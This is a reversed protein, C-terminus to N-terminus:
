FDDIIDVTHWVSSDKTKEHYKNKGTKGMKEYKRRKLSKNTQEATM